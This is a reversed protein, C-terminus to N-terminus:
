GQRIPLCQKMDPVRRVAEEHDELTLQVTEPLTVTFLHWDQRDGEAFLDAIHRHDSEELAKGLPRAYPGVTM